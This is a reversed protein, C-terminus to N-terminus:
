APGRAAFTRCKGACTESEGSAQLYIWQTRLVQRLRSPDDLRECLVRARALAEGVEVAALSRTTILARALLLQLDIEDACRVTEDEIEQLLGLGTHVNSIAESLAARGLAHEAAMIRFAVAREFAGARALHDALLEPQAKALVPFSGELARAIRAHLARRRDPLITDYAADRIM